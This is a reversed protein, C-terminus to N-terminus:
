DVAVANEVSTVAFGSLSFNACTCSQKSHYAFRVQFRAIYTCYGHIRGDNDDDDNYVANRRLAPYIRDHYSRRTIRCIQVSM